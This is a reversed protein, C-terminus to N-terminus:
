FEGAVEGDSRQCLYALITQSMSESIFRVSGDSLTVHAGGEHASGM